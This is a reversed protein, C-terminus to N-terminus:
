SNCLPVCRMIKMSIVLISDFTVSDISDLEFFEVKLPM